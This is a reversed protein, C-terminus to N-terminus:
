KRGFFVVADNGGSHPASFRHRFPAAPFVLATHRGRRMLLLAILCCVFATGAIWATLTNPTEDPAKDAAAAAAEAAGTRLDKVQALLSRAAEQMATLGPAARQGAAVAAATMTAAREEPLSGLSEGALAILLPPQLEPATLIVARDASGTWGQALRRALDAPPEEAASNLLVLYIGLGTQQMAAELEEAVAKREAATVKTTMDLLHDAPRDPVTVEQACVVLPTCLLPRLLRKM